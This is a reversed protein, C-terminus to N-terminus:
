SVSTEGDSLLFSMDKLSALPLFRRVMEGDWLVDVFSGSLDGAEACGVTYGGRGVTRCFRWGIGILSLVGIFPNGLEERFYGRWGLGADLSSPWM